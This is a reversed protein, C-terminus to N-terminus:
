PQTGPTGVSAASGRMILMVVGYVVAVGYAAMFLRPIWVEIHSFPKYLRPNKGEGIALWEAAYPAIPLHKEIAHIVAFKATNLDRYSCILRYWGYSMLMGAISIVAIMAFTQNPTCRSAVLGVSGLLVTNISLCFGNAAQRRQSIRDTMEVYLKYQELLHQGYNDGYQEPSASRLREDLNM